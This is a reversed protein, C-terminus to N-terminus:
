SFLSGILEGIILAGVGGGFSIRIYPGSMSLDPAGRLEIGDSRLPGSAPAVHYGARVGLVALWDPIDIEGVLSLGALFSGAEFRTRHGPDDLADDFHPGVNQAIEARLTGGGVSALPYLRWRDGRAVVYGIDFFGYTGGNLSASATGEARDFGRLVHGAGGVILRGIRGHGGAGYSLYGAPVSPLGRANLAENLASADIAGGGGHVFSQAHASRDVAWLSALLLLALGYRRPPTRRM